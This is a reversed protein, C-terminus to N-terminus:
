QADRRHVRSNLLSIRCFRLVTVFIWGYRGQPCVGTQYLGFALSADRAMAPPTLAIPWITPAERRM